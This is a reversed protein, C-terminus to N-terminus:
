SSTRASTPAGGPDAGDGNSPVRWWNPACPPPPPRRTSCGTRRGARPDLGCGTSAGASSALSRGPPCGRERPGPGAGWVRASASAPGRPGLRRGAGPPRRRGTRATFSAPPSTAGPTIGSAGQSKLVLRSPIGRDSPISYCRTPIHRSSHSAIRFAPKRAEEVRFFLPFDPSGPYGRLVDVARRQSHVEPDDQLDDLDQPRALPGM